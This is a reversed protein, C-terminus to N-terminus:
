GRSTEGRAIRSFGARGEDNRGAIERSARVASWAETVAKIDVDDVAEVAGVKRPLIFRLRGGRAKKDTQMAEWLQEATIGKLSPLRGVGRVLRVIRRAAEHDLIGRQAAITAATILGWGVAEGHLFRGYRTLSELAHGFTHGLNLVQRFGSEREDRSVIEAKIAICRAIVEDLLPSHRSLRALNQELLWFLQADGLVAYKVVEYLGARFERESLTRLVHPDAVVLRPQYFAGVLNKGEPLNVGTKGGIASDVQAVLTTPVQVLRIGRAYSAAVFGAVDGVVGGGLAVAISHRDAGGRALERCINEVTRMTKAREGDDFLVRKTGGHARFSRELKPGWLKWVRPSSLLFVGTNELLGAVAAGTQSLVGRRCVVAYHGSPTNVTIQTM